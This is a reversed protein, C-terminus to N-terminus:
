CEVDSLGGLYITSKEMSIKLCSRRAFSDFVEVIGKTSRVKGDSLIMLDDAFSMHTLGLNQSHPHYGFKGGAEKDLMRLGRYSNFFGALEGNVQVSFPATTICLMLWHIFEHPLDLAALVNRLFAWQVFDFAKSIDIKIACWHSISDKHYDKVLEAALLVNEILLRDKVFASQNWCSIPRYDKMERAEVRKPILALINSNAGKPLFGDPVPSKDYPMSFMVNKIEEATVPRTLRYKDESAFRFVLLDQLEAVTASEFDSPIHQLFDKFDREAESKIGEVDSLTSGDPRQIERIMNHSQRAQVARHFTKNNQDGVQLWHLKAKKKLYKEELGAVFSWCDYAMKEEAMASASPNLLNLAQKECLTAYAERTKVVFNELTGRALSRLKPKLAKLKKTFRFLSSTCLHIAETSEWFEELLPKFGPMHVMANLFKFPKRRHHVGAPSVINIRCRSHDSCGGAEFVNYSNPYTALWVENGLVRDLKKSIMDNDRKNCWTFRPGQSALDVLSCYNMVSQFDRMGETIRKSPGKKSRDRPPQTSPNSIVKHATKSGRLLSPRLQPLSSAVLQEVHQPNHEVHPPVTDGSPNNDVSEQDSLASFANSLLSASTSSTYTTSINIM